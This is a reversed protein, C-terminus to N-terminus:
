CGLDIQVPHDVSKELTHKERREERGQLSCHWDYGRQRTPCRSGLQPNRSKRRPCDVAQESRPKRQIATRPLRGPFGTWSWSYSILYRQVFALSMKILWGMRRSSSAGMLIHPLDEITTEDYGLVQCVGGEMGGQAGKKSVCLRVPSM